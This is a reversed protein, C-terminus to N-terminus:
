SIGFVRDIDDRTSLLIDTSMSEKEASFVADELYPPIEQDRRYLMRRLADRIVESVSSYAQDSAIQKADEYLKKPLSINITTLTSM